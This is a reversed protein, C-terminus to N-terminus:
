DTQTLLFAIVPVRNAVRSVAPFTEEATKIWTNPRTVVACIRNFIRVPIAETSAPQTEALKLGTESAGTETRAATETETAAATATATDSAPEAPTEVIPESTTVGTTEVAPGATTETGAAAEEDDAAWEAPLPSVPGTPAGSNEPTVDLERARATIRVHEKCDTMCPERATFIPNEARNDDIFSAENPLRITAFNERSLVFDDDVLDNLNLLYATLAYVENDSLTQAEGFPMARHTYDWVTSLYPWYSGLTKVPRDSTLTDAGGALVPWRGTGEGFEGHCAACRATFIEEGTAVDGSGEPLGAGDPRVDIDWATIEDATAPRGLGLPEGPPEAGAAVSTKTSAPALQEGTEATAQEPTSENTAAADAASARPQGSDSQGFVGPLVIAAAILAVAGMALSVWLWGQVQRDHPENAM